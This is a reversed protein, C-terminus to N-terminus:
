GLKHNMKKVKFQKEQFSLNEIKIFYFRMENEFHCQLDYYKVLRIAYMFWVVEVLM